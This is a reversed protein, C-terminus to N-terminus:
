TLLYEVPNEYCLHVQFDMMGYHLSFIKGERNRWLITRLFQMYSRQEM